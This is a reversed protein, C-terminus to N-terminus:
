RYCRFKYSIYEMLNKFRNKLYKLISFKSNFKKKFEDHSKSQNFDKFTKISHFNEKEEKRLPYNNIFKKLLNFFEEKNMIQKYTVM